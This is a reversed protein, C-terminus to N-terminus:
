SPRIAEEERLQALFVLPNVEQMFSSQHISSNRPYYDSRQHMKRNAEEILHQPITRRINDSPNSSSSPDHIISELPQKIIPLNGLKDNDSPKTNTTYSDGKKNILSNDEEM